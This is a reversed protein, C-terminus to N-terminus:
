QASSLINERIRSIRDQVDKSAMKMEELLKTADEKDERRDQMREVSRTLDTAYAQFRDLLAEYLANSVSDVLKFIYQFKINERYDKFHYLISKETERKIRNVGDKLASFAYRRKDQVANRFIKRFLGLFRYVGLRMVAETKIKTSYELAARAPPLSLGAINKVSETNPFELSKIDRNLYIEFSELTTNYESLADQILGDFPKAVLMLQDHVKAESEKIFRIIEPNVNEAMFTDLNQKFEQFIFYLTNSLGSAELKDANNEFTVSYGRIFDLAKRYIESYVPDFFSDIDNRLDKKLKQIAGDLTNRIISRVQNMGKQHGKIKKSIEVANNFDSGLIRENVEIWNNLGSAIVSLRELHNKLLIAHRGSTLKRHFSQWFESTQQDSFETLPKEKEWHSLRDGDRESLNLYRYKFLNYLASLTYIEPRYVILSLEESIRKVLGILDEKSEHESFDCNIIFITNDIIGMKRIMSLFKIDARRLGTRSSILYIIMHTKVLYDQIMTLHLPNPSDSGQCDALEINDNIESDRIELRIDKLYVALADDSVFDTHKTFKDGVFDIIENDSSVIDKVRDYGKLYSDLLISNVNRTDKTFLYESDLSDMAHLLEKRDKSKRIDVTKSESSLVMSPFLVIAQRLDANVEDWSKLFLWARLIEGKVVRTVISTIVGAGRKLYDDKLLSNVFTSKGSKISGIVAVRITDESIQRYIDTLTKDWDRFEQDSMGPVSKAKKVLFSIDTSLQLLQNKLESYFSMPM